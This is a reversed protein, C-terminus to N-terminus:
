RYVRGSTDRIIVSRRAAHELIGKPVPRNQPPVELIPRGELTSGAIGEAYNKPTDAIPQGADYKNRLSDIYGKATDERVDSLQSSKREVIERGPRYSDVRKGSELWVENHPYRPWNEENFMRGEDFRKKLWPPLSQKADPQATPPEAGPSGDADGGDLLRAIRNPEGGDEAPSGSGALNGPGGDADKGAARIADASAGDANAVTDISDLVNQATEDDFDGLLNGADEVTQAVGEQAGRFFAALEGGDAM